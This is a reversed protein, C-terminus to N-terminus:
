KLASIPNCKNISSLLEGLLNLDEFRFDANKMGANELMLKYPHNTVYNTWSPQFFRKNGDKDLCELRIRGGYKTKKILTLAQEYFPSFPHTVKITQQQEDSLLTANISTRSHSSQYVRHL